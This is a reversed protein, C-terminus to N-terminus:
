RIQGLLKVERSDPFSKKLRMEYGSEASRNGLKHEIRVALLLKEATLPTTSAREFRGFYSKASVYDGNIFAVDALGALAEPQDPQLILARQLYMEADNTAGSKQSCVGANLYAKGPTTYLPDNAAILFHKIGERERGHQCLFWGYNNHTDSNAADIGLSRKFDDEAEADERLAMHVLARVNYIPAYDSDARLAKALEELSVSYQGREYYAAALETRAKAIAEARTPDIHRGPDSACGTLGLIILFIALGKM